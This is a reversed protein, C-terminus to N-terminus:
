GDDEGGENDIEGGPTDDSNDTTDPSDESSLRDQPMEARQEAERIEQEAKDRDIEAALELPGLIREGARTNIGLAQLNLRLSNVFSGYNEALVPALLHERLIGEEKCHEEILRIV